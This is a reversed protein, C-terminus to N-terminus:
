REFLTERDRARCGRDNDAEENRTNRIVSRVSTQPQDNVRLYTRGAYEGLIGFFIMQLGGLFFIAVMSSAWGAAATSFEEPVALRYLMVTLGTLIGCFSCVVGTVTMLRLPRVSFSFAVRAWLRISKWLTYNSEGSHRNRHEVEVQTIRSTFQLLLGDIYPEAGRHNSILEALEARIVKYPSLYIGKPKQLVWEAVKGNFWSGLNKWLKQRKCRFKAYVVDFGSEIQALLEPLYLPDHQLDDDMIAVMRGRALRLGTIIANDQGYNRRLDVGTVNPHDECISEIVRWSADPSCDNVLIVEYDPCYSNLADGIARVLNQLCNASLYVPVVISLTPRAERSRSCARRESAYQDPSTM